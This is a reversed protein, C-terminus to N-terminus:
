WDGNNGSITIYVRVMQTGFIIFAALPVVVFYLYTTQYNPPSELIRVALPLSTPSPSIPCRSPHSSSAAIIFNPNTHFSLWNGRAWALTIFSYITFITVRACLGFSSRNVSRIARSARNLKYLVFGLKVPWHWCYATYGDLLFTLKSQLIVVFCM